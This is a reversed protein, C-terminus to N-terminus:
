LGEQTTGSLARLFVVLARKEAETLNLPRIEPDVRAGRKGGRDYHEVVDELTALSGDHMYPATRAVERLTPTKFAGRDEERGTVAFRGPDATDLGTNHFSEDTLNPGLHCTVCNGKGRFLRLGALAEASLSGPIGAVHRDYPSDGALITRVYTALAQALDASTRVRGSYRSEAVLRATVEDLTMDMEKPNTIPQLVQEELSAVRGDWFFARGYARNIITPTRRAGKRGFVGVATAKGDTFAREADHCTACSVTRDRSLIPDRFLQRGLLAKERTIPNSEPAPIYADLGLPVTIGDAALLSFILFNM